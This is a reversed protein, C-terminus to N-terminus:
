RLSRLSVCLAASIFRLEQCSWSVVRFTLIHVTMQHKRAPCRQSQSEREGHDKGDGGL